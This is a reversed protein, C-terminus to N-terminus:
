SPLLLQTAKHPAKLTITLMQLVNIANKRASTIVSRLSCFYEAHNASRFCGSIKQRTKMMRLDREAENNDFPLDFYLYGLVEHQRDRFRDLLNLAKGRKVRGRQGERREPEPNLAYGELLITEYRGELKSLTKEGIKRGGSQEREKRKKIELLLAIMDSGWPQDLDEALYTLDRLHHVNCLGHHCKEFRYYSAYYDHIVWGEYSELIGMRKMAEYGRKEDIHFYALSPTAAVHLWQTKGRVRCGTEDCHIWDAQRIQGKIAEAIPGARSGARAVMNIVTGPSLTCNFVDKCLESLRDCPILQYSSLYVVLASLREGYQVPARVEEPFSARHEKGCGCRGVEAQHETIELSVEEPLDRVQRRELGSARVLGLDRGCGNCCGELSHTVIVDPDDVMELHHGEHGNQGGPKRKGRKRLSKPPKNPNSSDSSPPKSSNRSNRRLQAVEEELKEVRDLLSLVLDAITEPDRKALDILEERTPRKSM